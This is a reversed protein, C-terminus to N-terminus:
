PRADEPTKRFYVDLAMCTAVLIGAVTTVARPAEFRLTLLLLIMMGFSAAQFYASQGRAGVRLLSVIGLLLSLGMAFHLFTNFQERDM